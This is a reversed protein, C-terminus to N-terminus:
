DEVSFPNHIIGARSYGDIALGILVTVAPLNGKVFDSTGDLPDIWVVANSTNFSEFNKEAIEEKTYTTRLQEEIFSRREDYKSALRESSVFKKLAEPISGPAVAPEIGEMSEKSEEGQINLTPYIHRLNDEITKQVKIDAITVPNDLGKSQTQLNGSAAVDRIVKGCEESLYICVSLFEALNIDQHSASSEM